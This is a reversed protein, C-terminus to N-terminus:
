ILRMKPLSYHISPKKKEALDPDADPTAREGGDARVDASSEAGHERIQAAKRLFSSENESFIAKNFLGM